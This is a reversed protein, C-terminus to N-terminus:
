YCCTESENGQSKSDVSFGATIVDKGSLIHFGFLSFVACAFEKVSSEVNQLQINYVLVSVSRPFLLGKSTFIIHFKSCMNFISAVLM